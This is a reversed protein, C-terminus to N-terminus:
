MIKLDPGFTYTKGAEMPYEIENSLYRIKCSQNNFVRITLTQLRGEKWYIDVMYNGRAKLGKIHGDKWASPLAPLVDIIGAHSQMLMEAIGATGGFNGDIQFPPHTDFLNPLTSKALLAQLHKFANESDSLRAYFNIIWARSWGTHGGGNALRHEITKSAAEFLSPTEATIQTGPHLGFLHSIHRHGPSAEEYDEIWEMITGNKGIRTDPLKAMATRLSDIFLNSEGLLNAAETCVEFLERAIQIDMTAGYTLQMPTKTGPLYYDNEPSYSPATVLQGNKNEILFDLVFRASGKMVPWAQDRLYASDSTYCFHDWLHLAMWPGAMPFTGWQIGDMLGTRGYPDTNHHMTWGRCGYMQSATVSGPETIKELFRILPDMTESLNCVDALWYNMQLNINTHYDSNWPADFHNNWIGQLNAPLVGPARSSGMLLYRGYQFYLEVLHRDEKGDIVQKLRVDSPITDIDEGCIGFDVRDFMNGHDSLHAERLDKYTKERVKDLLQDNRKVPDIRPDTDLMELNYDTSASIMLVASGADKLLLKGGAAEVQGDPTSVSVRAAFKMHKGGPGSEQSEADTLQGKMFISNGGSEIFADKERKLSITANMLGKESKLYVVIVNDPASVFVERSYKVGKQEYETLSIGTRLDLERRYNRIGTSDAGLDIFLDGLTQYSRIRPPTGLLYKNSLELARTINGILLLQRIEDLHDLAEPNNNNIKSGAWLSEENLQIQEIGTKGFVMAGLRGNGVPLAETWEAAPQKYWIKLSHKDESSTSCSPGLMVILLCLLALMLTKTVNM